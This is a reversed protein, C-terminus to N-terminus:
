EIEDEDKIKAIIIGDWMQDCEQFGKIKGMRYWFHMLALAALLLITMIM